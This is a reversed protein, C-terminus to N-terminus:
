ISSIVIANAFIFGNRNVTFSTNVRIMSTNAIRNAKDIGTPIKKDLIPAIQNAQM